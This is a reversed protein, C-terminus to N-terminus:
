EPHAYPSAINDNNYRRAVVAFWPWCEDQLGVHKMVGRGYHNRQQCRGLLRCGPQKSLWDQWHVSISQPLRRIDHDIFQNGQPALLEAFWDTV